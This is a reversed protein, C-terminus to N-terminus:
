QAGVPKYDADFTVTGVTGLRQLDIGTGTAPPPLLEFMRGNWVARYTAPDSTTAGALNAQIYPSGISPAVASRWQLSRFVAEEDSSGADVELVLEWNVQNFKLVAQNLQELNEGATVFKATPGVNRVYVLFVGALVGIVAVVVMMEVLSLGRRARKPLLQRSGRAFPNTM